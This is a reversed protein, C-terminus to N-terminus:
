RKDDRMSKEVPLAMLFTSGMGPQSSELLLRGKHYTEVIRKALPLGLGWGFNKTSYGPRFIRKREERTMGRGTDKVRIEMWKGNRKITVEIRGGGERIADLGNKILNELAWSLIEGDVKVRPIEEQSYLIEIKKGYRPLRERFYNCTERIMPLLDQEEFSPPSGIKSFRSTIGKLRAIDKEMEELTEMM